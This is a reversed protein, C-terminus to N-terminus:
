YAEWLILENIVRSSKGNKGKMLVHMTPYHGVNIKYCILLCWVSYGLARLELEIVFQRKAMNKSSQAKFYFHAFKGWRQRLM